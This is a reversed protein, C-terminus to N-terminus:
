SARARAARVCARAGLGRGRRRRPRPWTSGSARRKSETTSSGYRNYIPQIDHEGNTNLHELLIPISEAIKDLQDLMDLVDSRTDQVYLGLRGVSEWTM